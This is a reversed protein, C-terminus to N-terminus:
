SINWYTTPRDFKRMTETGLMLEYTDSPRVKVLSTGALGVDSERKVIHLGQVSKEM